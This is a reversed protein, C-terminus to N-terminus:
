MPFILSEGLSMLDRLYEEVTPGDDWRVLEWDDLTASILVRSLDLPFIGAAKGQAGLIADAIPLELRFCFGWVDALDKPEERSMLATIKNALINEPSDLRGLTEHEQIRGVHAPVDNILEIKLQLGNQLLNLRVFREERQLVDLRYEHRQGLAEILRSAWLSFRHDDNVFLDLDDSFRHGLYGRSAATGGPLYFGTDVARVIKLVDDQLPYLIDAYFKKDTM